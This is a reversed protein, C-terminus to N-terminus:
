LHTMESVRRWYRVAVKIGSWTVPDADCFPSQGDDGSWLHTMESVRRQRSRESTERGSRWRCSVDSEVGGSVGGRGGRAGPSRTLTRRVANYSCPGSAEPTHLSRYGVM